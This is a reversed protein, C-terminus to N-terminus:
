WQRAEIAGFRSVPVWNVDELTLVRGLRLTLSGDGNLPTEKGACEADTTANGGVASGVVDAKSVLVIRAVIRTQM